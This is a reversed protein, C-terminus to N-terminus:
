EEKVKAAEEKKKSEVLFSVLPEQLVGFLIEPLVVFRIARYLYFWIVFGFANLYQQSLLHVFPLRITKRNEDFKGEFWSTFRTKFSTILSDRYFGTYASYLLILSILKAKGKPAISKIRNFRFFSVSAITSLAFIKYFLPIPIMDSPKRIVELGPALTTSNDSGNPQDLHDDKKDYSLTEPEATSNDEILHNLNTNNGSEETIVDNNVIEGELTDIVKNRLEISSADKLDKAIWSLVLKMKDDIIPISDAHKQLTLIDDLLSTEYFEKTYYKVKLLKHVSTLFLHLQQLEEDTLTIKDGSNEENFSNALLKLKETLQDTKLKNYNYKEYLIGIFNIILFASGGYLFLYYLKARHRFPNDSKKGQQQNNTNDLNQDPLTIKPMNLPNEINIKGGEIERSILDNHFSSSKNNIFSLFSNQNTFKIAFYNCFSNNVYFNRKGKKISVLRKM